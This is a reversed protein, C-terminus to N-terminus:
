RVLELPLLQRKVPQTAPAATGEEELIDDFTLFDIAFTELGYSAFLLMDPFGPSELLSFEVDECRERITQMLARTRKGSLRFGEYSKLPVMRWERGGCEDTVYSCYKEVSEPTFPDIRLFRLAHERYGHSESEVERRKLIRIEFTSECM